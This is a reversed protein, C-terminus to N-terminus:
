LSLHDRRPAAHARYCPLGELMGQAGHWPLVRPGMTGAVELRHSEVSGRSAGRTGPCPWAGGLLEQGKSFRPDLGKLRPHVLDLRNWATPYSSSALHTTSKPQQTTPQQQPQRQQGGHEAMSPKAEM